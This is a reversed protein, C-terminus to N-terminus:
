FASTIQDGPEDWLEGQQPQQQPEAEAKTYNPKIVGTNGNYDLIASINRQGGRNKALIAYLKGETGINFGRSELLKAEESYTQNEKSKYYTNGQLPKVVSNWILMVINAYHEIESADAINQVSMDVPSLTQRNLQAAMVVPLSTEIALKEFESCIGKLEEKRSLRNGETNLKQIYDVFVAKVKTSKAIYRIAEILTPSDFDKYYVRLKGSTLLSLFEAEKPRYSDPVREGTFYRDKGRRYFSSLTKLNNGSLNMDAYINLLELNVATSDEEFTFFLVDGPEGDTALHLALNELMRTKGHSTPACIITLAGTPLLLPERGDKTDFAYPTSLGTPRKKFDSLVGEATPLTLLTSYEAERSIQKLGTVRESLVSLAEATKGDTALKLAEAALSITEEKQRDRDQALKLLDAEEQLTEATIYGGTAEALNRLIIARDTASTYPSNCLEITQRKLEHLEKETLGESKDGTARSLLRYGLWQAGSTATAIIEELEEKGNDPHERLFSDADVKGGDTPFSAVFPTLGAKQITAIAKEIKSATEEQKEKLTQGWKPTDYDFLLTVRKVGRDKAQQLAEASVNGGSAAVVNPLGAFTARLADIEGEVITIDRDREGNGTLRLGTLGFLHYRKSAKASIFADKYKPSYDQLTTRFVFGQINGGTRYPLSLFYNIGVDYPLNVEVGDRNIYRFLDRLEERISPSVFGFGAEKIFEDSYGRNERLYALTGRGEDTYLAERMKLGVAELRDQKEKYARYAASDEMQPMTLGLIPCLQRVAEATQKEGFGNLEMYFSLLDKNEGGQELVRHPVRRTITSKEKRGDHSREGNLKYPSAWGGRYPKFDMSPFARDVVEFLRPYLENQIFDTLNTM